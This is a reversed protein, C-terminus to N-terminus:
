QFATIQNIEMLVSCEFNQYLISILDVIKQPLGYHLTEWGPSRQLGQAGRHM